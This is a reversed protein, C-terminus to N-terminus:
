LFDCIRRWLQVACFLSSWLAKLSMFLCHKRPEDHQRVLRIAIHVRSGLSPFDEAISIILIFSLIEAIKLAIQQKKWDYLLAFWNQVWM